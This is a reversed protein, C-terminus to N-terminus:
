GYSNIAGGEARLHQGTIWRSDDSAVFSVIDAIDEARGLRQFPSLQRFKEKREDNSRDFMGPVTAGPGVSNVTIGRAGVEQSMAAVLADMGAKTASYVGSGAIPKVALQSSIFIIRGNDNLRRGAERLTLFSGRLNVNVVKDFKELDLDQVPGGGSVGSNAVVVDVGGFQKVTQDFLEAISKEDSVDGGLSVASGDAAKIESVVDKAAGENSNYHVVVNFGDRALRKCIAAGIGGSGGTVIATRKGSSM